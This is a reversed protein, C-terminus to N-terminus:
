IQFTGLVSGCPSTRSLDCPIYGHNSGEPMEGYIGISESSHKQLKPNCLLREVGEIRQNHEHTDGWVLKRQKLENPM